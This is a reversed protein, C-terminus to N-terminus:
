EVEEDERRRFLERVNNYSRSFMVSVGTKTLDPEILDTYDRTRFGKLIVNGEPTLLYELSFDGAIDGANARRRTEDELEINGGVTVRIREDFFNRSVEMQLETRGAITGNMYDEYSVIEFDIDLGRIHRDSMRNLQQSLIQSASTRAASTIGGGADAAALPNEPIFGGLILLAFVQKNLESENRNIENIRAMLAGGLARRQEPPMDIEFTIGPNMLNGKMNLYVQFPFQQRIGAASSQDAPIHARMLERASTRVSYIATIDMDAGLPDGTWVISSGPRIRFNRRLVDYFTLLYEGEAIEYRGSLNVTGGQDVGFSLVGGGKLLLHDGAFDDIIIKIESQRDLEINLSVETRELQSTIETSRDIEAAMLMFDTEPSTIFEVVGEDGIAEPASQPIIFTFASGENFRIRGELSPNHHSGRLRLDSDMLLRGHYLDNHTRDLNMLMFNRTSLALNFLINGPDAYNVSGNVLASRGLSDNLNFNNLIVNHRDFHIREENAFYGANLAPVRFSAGKLLIEGDILPASTTGSIKMNGGATGGLHTLMGRTFPGAVSLDLSDLFILADVPMDENQIFSGQVRLAGGRHSVSANLLYHGPTDNEVLLNIQEIMEGAIGLDTVDASLTLGPEGFIDRATTRIDLNGSTVPILNGTYGALSSLDANEIEIDLTTTAPPSERTSASIYTEGLGLRFNSIALYEKGAVISNSPDINWANGGLVLKEHNISVHYLSDVIETLLAAHLFENDSADSASLSLILLDDSLSGSADLSYLGTEESVMTEAVFSFDMRKPDSVMIGAIDSLEAGFIGLEEMGVRLELKQLREEFLVSLSLTDYKDIGPLLLMNIIDDPFLNANLYFYSNGTSDTQVSPEPFTFYSSLHGALISPMRLPNFNGRYTGELFGSRIFLSYNAEESESLVSIEPITYIDGGNALAANTLKVLGNFFGQPSFAVDAELEGGVLMEEETAGLKMLDAYEIGLKVNAFPILTFVGVVAELGASVIEDTYKTHIQVVSDALALEINIDDYDHGALSLGTILMSARAEALAPDTGRGSIDVTFSPYGALFDMGLSAADFGPSCIRAEYRREGEAESLTLSAALDGLDSEVTTAAKFEALSGTFTGRAFIREPLGTDPLEIQEPMLRALAEPFASLELHSSDIYLDGPGAANSVAASFRLSFAEEASATFDKVSFRLPTGALSGGAAVRAELLPSLLDSVPDPMFFLIDRGLDLEEIDLLFKSHRAEGMDFDIVPLETSFKIGARTQGTRLSISASGGRRGAGVSLSLHDARFGESVQTSMDKLEINITDPGICIDQANFSLEKLSFNGPDFSGSAPNGDTRYDINVNGATMQGAEVTWYDTVESLRFVPRDSRDGRDSRDSRDGREPETLVPKPLRIDAMVDKVDFSKIAITRGALDTIDPIVGFSGLEFNISSGDHGSLIFIFNDINLPGAQLDPMVPKEAPPSPAASPESTVLEAKGGDIVTKGTCYRGNLLDSGGLDTQLLDLRADLNIGTFHDQYVIGINELKVRKLVFSMGGPKETDNQSDVAQQLSASTEPHTGTGPTEGQAIRAAIVQWNFLTDPENRKLFAKLDNIRLSEIHIRNRLLATIRLGAYISGASILTDGAADEIYVGELGAQGPFRIAVREVTIVTGTKASLWVTVRGTLWTQVAPFQLAFTVAAFLFLLAMVSRIAFRVLRRMYTASKRPPM